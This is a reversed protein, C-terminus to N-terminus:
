GPEGSASTVNVGAVKGQILQEPGLIIGKNFSEAKVSKVAGTVDRKNQSGYGVVVVNTLDNTASVLVINSAQSVPVERTAFGVFSIILIDNDDKVSISFNGNADSTTSAGSSKATVTAGALPSGGQQTIKGTILKDVAGYWGPVPANENDKAQSFGSILVILVFPLMLRKLKDKLM